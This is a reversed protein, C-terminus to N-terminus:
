QIYLSFTELSENDSVELSDFLISPEIISDPFVQVVEFFAKVEAKVEAENSLIRSLHLVAKGSFPEKPITQFCKAAIKPNHSKDLFFLNLNDKQKKEFLLLRLNAQLCEM